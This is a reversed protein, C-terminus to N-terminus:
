CFGNSASDRPTRNESCHATLARHSEDSRNKGHNTDEFTRLAHESMCLTVESIQFRLNSSERLYVSPGWDDLFVEISRAFDEFDTESITKGVLEGVDDEIASVVKPRHEILGCEGDGALMGSEIGGFGGFEGESWRFAVHPIVQGASALIQWRFDATQKFPELRVLSPIVGEPCHVFQAVDRLVLHKVGNCDPAIDLHAAIDCDAVGTQTEMGSPVAFVVLHYNCTNGIGALNLALKLEIDGKRYREIVNILNNTALIRNSHEASHSAFDLADQHCSFPLAASDFENFLASGGQRALNLIGVERQLDTKAMTMEKDDDIVHDNHEIAALARTREHSVPIEHADGTEHLLLIGRRSRLRLKAACNRCKREISSKAFSSFEGDSQFAFSAEFEGDCASTWPATLAM